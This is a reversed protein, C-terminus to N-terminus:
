RRLQTIDFETVLGGTNGWEHRVYSLVTAIEADSLVMMFPPMGYPRPNGATAPAFGGRLVAQGLNHTNEMSAARNGALAPYVGAVGQGQSGHCDACHQEYLKRGARLLGSVDQPQLAALPQSTTAPLARLYTAMARADQPQLYQTGHLVVEAMPGSALGRASSGRTLFAVVEDESWDAVSAQARDLLSPAYWRSGPLVSGQGLGQVAGLANRSSHCEFCHGLGQTLYAGRTWAATDTKAPPTQALADPAEGARFYLTRWAWLAAQTSYPWPLAHETNSRTSAPVTQLYAWLADSDQRTLHTYSTYPFAPYLLRGERSVGHHMARWFEGATWQGIGFNRDPTINSSTVSGFPTDIARGGAFADGGRATHCFACNGIRALYQGREVTAADAPAASAAASADVAPASWQPGKWLVVLLLAALLWVAPHRLTRMM